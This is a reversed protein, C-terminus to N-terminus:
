CDSVIRVGHIATGRLHMNDSDDPAILNVLVDTPMAALVDKDPLPFMLDADINAGNDLTPHELRGGQHGRRKCRAARELRERIPVAHMCHDNGCVLWWGRRENQLTLLATM